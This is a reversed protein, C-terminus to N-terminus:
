AAEEFSARGGLLHDVDLIPLLRGDGVHAIQRVVVSTTRDVDEIASGDVVLVEDVGDVLWGVVGQSDGLSTVVIRRGDHADADEGGVTETRNPDEFAIPSSKLGGLALALDHVPMATGRLDVIGLATPDASGIPQATVGRIVERVAVIPFAYEVGSVRCAVLQLDSM